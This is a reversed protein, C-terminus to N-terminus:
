PSQNQGHGFLGKTLRALYTPVYLSLLHPQPYDRLIRWLRNPNFFFQRNARRQCAFLVADPVASLNVSIQSFDTDRYTLKALQEAHTNAVHDYLHTNPYPTATFFSATHLMSNSAVDITQRMEAETETPFGLMAFGNAFVGRKVAMEVAQLFRPINLNKGMLRQIRPSGSELAFSCFYTGADALAEVEEETLIDSRIGNPFAIRIRLNRRHLLDCFAALRSRDLNFIDDLFEFDKVGYIRQFHQIEDVIREPSHTRFEKGFIRHCWSCHYPCGRSSVLSAYRRWPLPPMSQLRWYKPLDILDYAPLPLSDLNEIPPMAGPNTIVQGDVDRWILGPINGLDGGDFYARIVQEFALEGEDAVAANAATDALAKVNFSTVHPGGLVILAKPLGARVMRTLPAFGHGSPTLSSFGVIDAAFDVAQRALEENSCNSERQNALQIDLDFKTRLYSALYMIGMPPTVMPYLLRRHGLNALFMRLKKM